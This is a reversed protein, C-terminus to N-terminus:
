GAHQDIHADLPLSLADIRSSLHDIRLGPYDIRSGLYFLSGILTAASLGIASWAVAAM